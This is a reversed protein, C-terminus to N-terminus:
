LAVTPFLVTETRIDLHVGKGGAHAKVTAYWALIAARVEASASLVCEPVTFSFLTHSVGSQLLQVYSFMVLKPAKCTDYRYKM